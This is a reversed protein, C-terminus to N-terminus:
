QMKKRKRLKLIASNYNQIRKFKYVIIQYRNYLTDHKNTVMIIFKFYKNALFYYTIQMKIGLLSMFIETDM